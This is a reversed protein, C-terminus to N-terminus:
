VTKMPEQTEIYRFRWCEATELDLQFRWSLRLNILADKGEVPEFSVKVYVDDEFETFVLTNLSERSILYSSGSGIPAVFVPIDNLSGIYGDLKFQMDRVLRLGEPREVHEDYTSRTWDLLWRPEARGAVFLIPTEGTNRIRVAASKIQQWYSVPGDVNVTECAITKLVEAMVSGAVHNSVMQDFWEDENSARQAMPPEVFEGKNMDRIILSHEAHEETSHQVERFLSVPIDASAKDFGSQSCWRAVQKLRDESVPAAKLQGTRFGEIGEVLQDVRETLATIANQLTDMAGFKAQIFSYLSECAHFEEDALRTKWQKLQDVFARM